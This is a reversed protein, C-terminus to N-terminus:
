LALASCRKPAIISYRRLARHAPATSTSSWRRSWSKTPASGRTLPRIKLRKALSEPLYMSTRRTPEAEDKRFTDAVSAGSKGASRQASLQDKLSPRTAM